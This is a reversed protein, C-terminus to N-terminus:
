DGPFVAIVGAIALHDVRAGRRLESSRRRAFGKDSDYSCRKRCAYEALRSWYASGTPVHDHMARMNLGVRHEEVSRCPFSPLECSKDISVALRDSPVGYGVGIIRGLHLLQFPAIRGFLRGSRRYASERLSDVFTCCRYCQIKSALSASRAIASGRKTGNM